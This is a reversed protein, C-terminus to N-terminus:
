QLRTRNCVEQFVRSCLQRFLVHWKSTNHLGGFHLGKQPLQLMLERLVAYKVCTIYEKAKVEKHLANEDNVCRQM